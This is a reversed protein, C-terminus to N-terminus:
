QCDNDGDALGGGLVVEATQGVQAEFSERLLIGARQQAANYGAAEVAADTVPKDGLGPSVRKGQQLQRTVHGSGLQGTAELKRAGALKRRLDLRVVQPADALQGLRRLAQHQQRGGLRQAVRRQHQARPSREADLGGRERGGLDDAQQLDPRADAEAM